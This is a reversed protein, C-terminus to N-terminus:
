TKYRFARSRLDEYGDFLITKIVRKFKDLDDESRVNTPLANWLRTGHYEFLRKGYSTNFNPTNLLLFDDSRGNFGKYSLEITPPCLGKLIKFVLLLIKFIVRAEVNLWHLQRLAQSASDRKRKGLVLRAAAHQVKKLIFLNNQSINMFVSNCYDLRSTIVAHVLRELHDRELCKKIKSIDKIIKYCHSAISTVHKNMNLNKDLWLGVNKVENSFRICEGEYIVGRIIVEKNLSSPYMMLIETKDPNIKMFHMNSWKVIEDLCKVIESTIVNFQFTLAFQKRGNSDDAFSSSKFKCREFAMRQSRVNINFCRPGLISGQPAGFPVEEKESYKEEIKVRQTRGELFSRFWKLVTGGLGLEEYMIDLLKDVDITDFAASLDLFIIVTAQNEDFGRLAENVIGLMMMETNHHKKYAFQSGEHLRNKTMHNTIQNDVCREIIKSLFLLNNVPRYNKYEESDLGTKKLLPDLVSEKIGEMSGEHLSKNILKTLVPLVIDLSSNMLRSPIPDEMSTKIGKEKIMNKVEEETVLCFNDIREGNFKRTYVNCEDSSKPISNRIKKVKNIFYNNFDNALQKPDNYSPLVKVKRKDLLENAIKFLTKQCSGANRVLNRYYESRKSLALEVCVQKQNIYNLRNEESRNRKWLKEYRRRLARCKKYDQDIWSSETNKITRTRIPAHKDM